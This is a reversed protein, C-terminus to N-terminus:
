ASINHRRSNPLAEANTACGKCRHHRYGLSRLGWSPVGITITAGAATMVTFVDSPFDDHDHTLM